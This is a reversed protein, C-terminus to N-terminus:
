NLAFGQQLRQFFDKYLVDEEGFRGAYFKRRLKEKLSPLGMQMGGAWIKGYLHREISGYTRPRVGKVENARM